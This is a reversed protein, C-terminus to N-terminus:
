DAVEDRMRVFLLLVVCGSILSLIGMSGYLILSGMEYSVGSFGLGIGAVAMLVGGIVYRPLRGAYIALLGWAIGTGAVMWGGPSLARISVAWAMAAAIVFAVCLVLILLKKPVPKLEVFGVKEMLFRRRVWKIAWPAVGIMPVVVVM